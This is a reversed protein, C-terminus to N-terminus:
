NNSTPASGLRGIAERIMESQRDSSIEKKVIKGALDVALNASQEALSKMADDRALEVDRVARKREAEAAAQAEAIISAKTAAADRHAEELMSKVESAAAALKAEHEALLRKADEHKAEAAAINGTIGEERSELAKVIPDWAVVRLLTVLAIFVVLTALALDLDVVMPDPGSAESHDGGHDAHDSEHGEGAHTESDAEAADDQQAATATEGSESEQARCLSVPILGFMALLLLWRVHM